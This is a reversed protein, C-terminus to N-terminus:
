KKASPGGVSETADKLNGAMAGVRAVDAVLNIMKKASFGLIESREAYLSQLNKPLNAFNAKKQAKAEAMRKDLKAAIDPRFEALFSTKPEQESKSETSFMLDSLDNLQHHWLGETKTSDVVGELSAMPEVLGMFNAKEKELDIGAFPFGYLNMLEMVLSDLQQIHQDFQARAFTDPLLQQQIEALTNTFRALISELRTRASARKEEPMLATSLYGMSKMLVVAENHLSGLYTLNFAEQKNMPDYIHRSAPVSHLRDQHTLSSIWDTLAQWRFGTAKAQSNYPEHGAIAPILDQILFLKFDEQQKKMENEYPVMAQKAWWFPFNWDQASVIQPDLNNLILDMIGNYIRGGKGEWTQLLPNFTYLGMYMRRADRDWKAFRITNPLDKCVEFGVDKIIRPPHFRPAVGIPSSIVESAKLVDVDNESAVPKPGCAMSTIIYESLNRIEARDISDPVLDAQLDAQESKLGYASELTRVYSSEGPLDIVMSDPLATAIQGLIKFGRDGIFPIEFDGFPTEVGMPKAVPRLQTERSVPRENYLAWALTSGKILMEARFVRQALEDREKEDLSWYYLPDAALLGQKIESITSPDAKEAPSAYRFYAVLIKFNHILDGSLKERAPAKANTELTENILKLFKDEYNAFTYDFVRWRVKALDAAKDGSGNTEQELMEQFREYAVENAYVLKSIEDELTRPNNFTEALAIRINQESPDVNSGQEQDVTLPDPEVEIGEQIRLHRQAREAFNGYIKSATAYTTTLKTIHDVWNGFSAESNMLLTRRWQEQHRSYDKLVKSFSTRCYDDNIQAFPRSEYGYPLPREAWERARQCEKSNLIPDSTWGIRNGEDRLKMLTAFDHSIKSKYDTKNWWNQVMGGVSDIAVFFLTYHLIRGSWKSVVEAAVAPLGFGARKLTFGTVSVIAEAITRKTVVKMATDAAALAISGSLLSMINGIHRTRAEENLFHAFGEQCINRWKARDEEKTKNRSMLILGAACQQVPAQTVLEAFIESVFSGAALGLYGIMMQTGQAFALTSHQGLNLPVGAKKLMSVRMGNTQLLRVSERSMLLHALKRHTYMFVFFSAYSVPDKLSRIYHDIASPDKQADTALQLMTSLGIAMYFAFAEPPFQVTTNGITTRKFREWLAKPAAKYIDEKKSPDFKIDIYEGKGGPAYWRYSGKEHVKHDHPNFGPRWSGSENGKGRGNGLLAVTPNQSRYLRAQEAGRAAAKGLNRSDRQNFGKNDNTPRNGNGNRDFRAAELPALPTLAMLAALIGALPRKLSPRMKASM